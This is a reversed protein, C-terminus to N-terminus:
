ADGLRCSNFSRREFGIGNCREFSVCRFHCSGKSIFRVRLSIIMPATVRERMRACGIIINLKCVNGCDIIM